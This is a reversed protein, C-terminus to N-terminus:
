DLLVALPCLTQATAYESQGGGQAGDVHGRSQGWTPPEANRCADPLWPNLTELWPTERLHLVQPGITMEEKNQEGLHVVPWWKAGLRAPSKFTCPLLVPTTGWHSVLQRGHVFGWTGDRSGGIFLVVCANHNTVTTTNAQADTLHRTPLKGRTNRNHLRFVSVFEPLCDSGPYPIWCSRGATRVANPVALLRNGQAATALQLDGHPHGSMRM